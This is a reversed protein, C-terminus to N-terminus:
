GSGESPELAPGLGSGSPTVGGLGREGQERASCLECGPGVGISRGVSRGLIVNVFM